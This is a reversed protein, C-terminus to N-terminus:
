LMNSGEYCNKEQLDLLIKGGYINVKLITYMKSKELTNPFIYPITSFGRKM